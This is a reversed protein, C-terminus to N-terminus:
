QVKMRPQNHSEVLHRPNLLHSYVLDKQYVNIEEEGGLYLQSQRQKWFPLAKRFVHLGLHFFPKM